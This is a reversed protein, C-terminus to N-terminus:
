LLRSSCTRRPTLFYPKDQSQDTNMSTRSYCPSFVDIFPLFKRLSFAKVVCTRPITSSTTCCRKTRRTGQCCGRKYGHVRFVQQVKQSM